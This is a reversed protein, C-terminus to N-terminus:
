PVSAPTVIHILEAAARAAQEITLGFESRLSRIVDMKRGAKALSILASSSICLGGLLMPEGMPSIPVPPVVDITARDVGAQLLPALFSGHVIWRVLGRRKLLWEMPLFQVVKAGVRDVDSADVIPDADSPLTRM